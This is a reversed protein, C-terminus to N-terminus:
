VRIFCNRKIHNRRNYCANYSDIIVYSRNLQLLNPLVVSSTKGTREGAILLVNNNVHTQTTNINLKINQSLILNHDHEHNVYTKDYNIYDDFWKPKKKFVKFM